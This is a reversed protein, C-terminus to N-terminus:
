VPGYGLFFKVVEYGGELLGGFQPPLFEEGKENLGTRSGQLSSQFM